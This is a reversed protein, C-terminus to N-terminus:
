YNDIIFNKLSSKIGSFLNRRRADGAADDNKSLETRGTTLSPEFDLRAISDQTGARGVGDPKPQLPYLVARYWAVDRCVM